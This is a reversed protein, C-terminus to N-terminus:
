VRNWMQWISCYHFSLPQLPSAYQVVSGATRPLPSLGCCNNSKSHRLEHHLKQKYDVNMQLNKMIYKNPMLM